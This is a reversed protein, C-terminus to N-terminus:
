GQLRQRNGVRAKALGIEIETDTLFRYPPLDLNRPAPGKRIRGATDYQSGHCSCFWGKWDGRRSGSRQGQPICGLHTCIGIVILWQSRQARSKDPAPDRMPANDESIALQIEDDTRHSIFVPKGGWMVTLRQGPLVPKLNVELTALARTDAAPNMSDIFPWLAAASGVVAFASAAVIIFDRRTPMQPDLHPHSLDTM